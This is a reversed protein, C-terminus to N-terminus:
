QLIVSLLFCVHFPHYGPDQNQSQQEAAAGALLGINLVLHCVGARFGDGLPIYGDLIADEFSHLSGRCLGDLIFIMEERTLSEGFPICKESVTLTIPRGSLLHIECVESLDIKSFQESIRRPLLSIIESLQM